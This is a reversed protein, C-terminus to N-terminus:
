PGSSGGRSVSPRSSVADTVEAVGPTLAGAHPPGAAEPTRLRRLYAEVAEIGSAALYRDPRILFLGRGYKRQVEGAVDVARDARAAV